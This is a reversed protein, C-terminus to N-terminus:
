LGQTTAVPNASEPQLDGGSSTQARTSQAAGVERIRALGMGLLIRSGRDDVEAEGPQVAVSTAPHM